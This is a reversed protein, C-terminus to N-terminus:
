LRIRKAIREAASYPDIQRAAIRKVHAELSDDDIKDALKAFLKERLLFLLESRCIQLRQEQYKGNGLSKVRHEEIRDVLSDVGENMLASTPHVALDSDEFLAKLQEVTQAAGALDSKNVILMDAIEGLGAKMGQVEDGMQPIIVLLVMHALAAIDLQDQGVGITEVLVVDKGIADLLHIADRVAGSVGGSRGRTAFSRIFVGDDLFHDRMRIRDGLLAGSSFPSSPDVALVGVSNKRRRYEATLRDILSSKGTGAAGTVGVVHANGSHLFLDKLVSRAQPSENEILSMLSAVARIDGKLIRKTLDASMLNM